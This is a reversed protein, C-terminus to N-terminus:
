AIEPITEKIAKLLKLSLEDLDAATMALSLYVDGRGALRIGQEMCRLLLLRRFAITKETVDAARLPRDQGYHLSFMSGHGTLHVPLGAAAIQTELSQKFAETLEHFAQAREPTYVTTLGALGASMSIVNNNFTGAHKLSATSRPDFREMIEQKGGFAGFPMGGGVYKGLTTLDPTLKVLGQVGQPSCRSTKVEDFILLSKSASTAERLVTLFEDTGPINGGAGLIPEVLVAAIQEGQKEFLARVAAPDNYPLVIYDFPVNMPSGGGAFTMVGGHYAGDFVVIYDRKTYARATVLAFLNAETGSNCFRVKDISDFRKCILEALEAEWTNPGGLTLGGKLALEIARHIAPQQHGYLGASFEGVCDLYELGDVDIVRSGKGERIVLPFPDYHLVTRTNGGPMWQSANNMAEMSRPHTAIYRETLRQLADKYEPTM